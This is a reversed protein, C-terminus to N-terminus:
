QSKQAYDIEIPIEITEKAFTVEDYNHSLDRMVRGNKPNSAFSPASLLSDKQLQTLNLKDVSEAPIYCNGFKTKSFNVTSYDFKVGTFDVDNLTTGSFDVEALEACHFSVQTMGSDAFDINTLKANSFDVRTFESDSMRTQDIFVNTLDCDTFYSGDMNSDYITGDGLKVEDFGSRSLDMLKFHCGTLDVNEIVTNPMDHMVLRMAVLSVNQFLVKTALESM